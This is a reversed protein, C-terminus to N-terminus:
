NSIKVFSASAQSPGWFLTFFLLSRLIYSDASVSLLYLDVSGFFRDMDPYFPASFSIGIVGVFRIAGPLLVVLSGHIFIPLIFPM